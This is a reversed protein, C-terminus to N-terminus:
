IVVLKQLQDSPGVPNEQSSIVSPSSEIEWNKEHKIAYNWVTRKLIDRFKNVKEATTRSYIDRNM